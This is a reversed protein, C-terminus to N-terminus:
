IADWPFVNIKKYKKGSLTRVSGSAFVELNASFSDEDSIESGVGPGELGFFDLYLM